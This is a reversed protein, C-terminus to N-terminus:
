CGRWMWVVSQSSSSGCTILTSSPAGASGGRTEGQPPCAWKIQGLGHGRSEPELDLAERKVSPAAWVGEGVPGADASLSCLAPSWSGGSARTM